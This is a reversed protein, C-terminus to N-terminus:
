IMTICEKIYVVTFIYKFFIYVYMYNYKDIIGIYLPHTSFNLPAWLPQGPFFFFVRLLFESNPEWDRSWEENVVDGWCIEEGRQGVPGRHFWSIRLLEAGSTDGQRGPGNAEKMKESIGVHYHRKEWMELQALSLNQYPGLTKIAEPNLM